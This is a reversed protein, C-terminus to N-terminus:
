QESVVRKSFVANMQQTLSGEPNLEARNAVMPYCTTQNECYFGVKPAMGTEHKLHQSFRATKKAISHTNLRNIKDMITLSETKKYKDAAFLLDFIGWIRWCKFQFDKIPLGINAAKGVERFRKYENIRCNLAISTHATEELLKYAPHAPETHKQITQLLLPYRTIQQVPM